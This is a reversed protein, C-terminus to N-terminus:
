IAVHIEFTIQLIEQLKNKKIEINKERQEIKKSGQKFPQQGTLKSPLDINREKSKM